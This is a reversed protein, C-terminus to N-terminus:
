YAYFYMTRLVFYELSGKDAKLSVVAQMNIIKM